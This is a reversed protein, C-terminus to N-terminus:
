IEEVSEERRVDVAGGGGLVRIAVGLLAVDVLALLGGVVSGVVAAIAAGIGVFLVVSLVDAPETLALVLGAVGAVALLFTVGAVSGWTLGAVLADRVRGGREVAAAVGRRTTWWAVAWLALYAAAGPLTGLGGLADGLNGSGHLLGLLAVMVLAAHVSGAAFAVLPDPDGDPGALARLSGAADREDTRREGADGADAEHTGAGAGGTSDAPEVGGTDSEAM